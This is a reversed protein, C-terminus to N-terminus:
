WHYRHFCYQSATNSDDKIERQLIHAHKSFVFGSGVLWIANIMNLTPKPETRIHIFIRSNIHVDTKQTDRKFFFIVQMCWISCLDVKYEKLPCVGNSICKSYM